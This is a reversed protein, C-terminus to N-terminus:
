LCGQLALSLESVSPKVRNRRSLFASDIIKERVEVSDGLENYESNSEGLVRVLQVFDSYIEGKIKLYDGDSFNLHIIPTRTTFSSSSISTPHEISLNSLPLNYTSIITM